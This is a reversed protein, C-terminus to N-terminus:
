NTESRILQGGNAAGDPESNQSEMVRQANNRRRAELISWQRAFLLTSIVVVLAAGPISAALLQRRASGFMRSPLARIACFCAAGLLIGVLIDHTLAVLEEGPDMRFM